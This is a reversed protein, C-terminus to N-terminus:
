SVASLVVSNNFEIAWNNADKYVLVITDEAANFTMTNNTGDVTAASTVIVTKSDTISVLRIVARHGPSPAPLVMDAIGNAGGTILTVGNTLCVKDTGDTEKLFDSM